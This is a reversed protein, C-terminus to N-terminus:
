DTFVDNPEPFEDASNSVCKKKPLPIKEILEEEFSDITQSKSKGKKLYKRRNADINPKAITFISLVVKPLNIPEEEYLGYKVIAEYAILRNKKSLTEIAEFYSPYFLFNITKQTANADQKKNNKATM